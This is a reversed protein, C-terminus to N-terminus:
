ARPNRNLDAPRKESQGRDIEHFDEPSLSDDFLDDAEAQAPIPTVHPQNREEIDDRLNQPNGLNAFEESM